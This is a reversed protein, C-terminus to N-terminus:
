RWNPKLKPIGEANEVDIVCVEALEKVCLPCIAVAPCQLICHTYDQDLKKIDRLVCAYTEDLSGPVTVRQQSKRAISGKQRFIELHIYQKM